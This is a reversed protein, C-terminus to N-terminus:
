VISYTAAERIVILSLSISSSWVKTIDPYFFLSLGAQVPKPHMCWLAFCHEWAFKLCFWRNVVWAQTFNRTSIILILNMTPPSIQLLNYLWLWDFYLAMWVVSKLLQSRRGKSGMFSSGLCDGLASSYRRQCPGSSEQLSIKSKQLMAKLFTRRCSKCGHGGKTNM